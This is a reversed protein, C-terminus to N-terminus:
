EFENFAAREDEQRAEHAYGKAVQSLVSATRPWKAQVMEALRRFKAALQREQDGGESRFFAGRRNYIGVAFAGEIDQNASKEILNRVPECPWRGDADAPAHSLVQGIHSDCVKLRGCETALRQAEDVWAFLREQDVQGGTFVIDGETHKPESEAQVTGPVRKWARLLHFWHTAVARDEETVQRPDEDKGRFLKKLVEVFLAPSESLARQVAKPGRASDELGSMWVWEIRALITNDVGEKELVDLIEGVHYALTALHPRPSESGPDKRSAEDLVQIVLEKPFVFPQSTAGQSSPQHLSASILDLAGFPRGVALLNKVARVGDREVNPLFYFAKMSWYLNVADTGWRELRDWVPGEEPLWLVLNAHMNSDWAIERRSLVSDLWKDGRRHYTSCVYGLGLSLIAPMGEKSSEERLTQQLLKAEVDEDLDSKGLIFGIADPREVRRALEMIGDMGQSCIIEKLVRTREDELQRQREESKMKRQGPFEPWSTFLWINREIIGSPEFRKQIEALTKLYEKDAEGEDEEDTKTRIALATRLTECVVKRDVEPVKDAELQRLSELMQSALEPHAKRLRFYAEILPKWREGSTGVWKLLRGIIGEVFRWYDAARVAPEGAPMWQRWAPSSTPSAAEYGQPLLSVAIRWAVEPCHQRLVDIADLRHQADASTQPYWPLFIATLSASPRNSLHGGPDVEAMKGLVVTVRTLFEKSWALRELAWLLHTHPSGGFFGGEEFMALIAERDVLWDDLAQLFASPAAEALDPLWPALSLWTAKRPVREGRLLDRVIADALSQGSRGSLDQDHLAMQAVSGVLGSILANSYSHAKGYISAAWRQDPPLDFRPDPKSLVKIAVNQFREVLNRDMSTVLCGWSFDWALWDWIAGRRVLPGSPAAWSIITKEVDSYSRGCLEAVSERDGEAGPTWQGALVLPALDAAAGGKMWPLDTGQSGSIMWLLATLSGKCEQAVRAARQPNLGATKLTEECTQRRISGIEIDPREEPPRAASRVCPVILRISPTRFANARRLSDATVPMVLLPTRISSVYDMAVPQNVFLVRLAVKEMKDPPLKSIAAAVFVSAEEVSEGEITIQMKDSDLWEHLKGVAEDRGGILLDPSVPIACPPVAEGLYLDIDKLGEVPIGMQRALWLAIGPAMELWAALDCNDLVRVERWVGESTKSQAWNTKTDWRHPSVFIFATSKPDIGRLNRCRSAYDENAKKEPEGTGMEWVSPGQPVFANGATTDVQGDYGPRGVDDGVPIRLSLLAPPDVTAAILKRVLHPLMEQADRRTSIFWQDIQTSDVIQRM